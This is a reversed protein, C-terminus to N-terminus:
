GSSLNTGTASEYGEKQGDAYGLDYIRQGVQRVWSEMLDQRVWSEMLNRLDSWDQDSIWERDDTLM